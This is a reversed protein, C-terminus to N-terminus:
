IKTDKKKKTKKKKQKKPEIKMREEEQLKKERELLEEFSIDDSDSDENNIEKENGSNEEKKSNIDVKQNNQFPVLQFKEFNEKKDSVKLRELDNSLCNSESRNLFSGGFIYGTTSNEDYCFGGGIRSDLHGSLVYIKEWEFHTIDFRSIDLKENDSNYHLFIIYKESLQFYYAFNFYQPTNGFMRIPAWTLTTLNLMFFDDFSSQNSFFDKSKSGGMVYYNQGILFSYHSHRPDPSKGKTQISEWKYTLLNYTELSNLPELEYNMGGFFYLKHDAINLSYNIRFTNPRTEDNKIPYLKKTIIDFFFIHEEDTPFSNKVLYLYRGNVLISQYHIFDGSVHFYESISFNGIEITKNILENHTYFIINDNIKCVILISGEELMHMMPRFAKPLNNKLNNRIWGCYAYNIYKGEKKALTIPEGFSHEENEKLNM